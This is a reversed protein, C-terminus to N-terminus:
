QSKGALSRLFSTAERKNRIDGAYRKMKLIKITKGLQKGSFGTINAVEHGDLLPKGRVKLYRDIKKLLNGNMSYIGLEIHHDKMSEFLHFERKALVGKRRYGLYKQSFVIFDICNNNILLLTSSIDVNNLLATLLIMSKKSLGQSVEENLIKKYHSTNIFDNIKVINNINISLRKNNCSLIKKLLGSRQAHRLAEIFSKGNMLQIFEFTIRELSTQSILGYNDLIIQMTEREIEWGLESNFRFARLMRIPDNILNEPRTARIYRKHLDQKGGWPDILGKTHHYAMANITFDRKVLDQEITDHLRTFDLNGGNKLAIRVTLNDRFQIIKGPFIKQVKQAASLPDINVAYDRDVAAKDLLTDRIYGGVLFVKKFINFIRRTYPDRKIKEIKRRIM